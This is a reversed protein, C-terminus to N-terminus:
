CSVDGKTSGCMPFVKGSCECGCLCKGTFLNHALLDALLCLHRYPVNVKENAYKAEKGSSASASSNEIDNRTDREHASQATRSLKSPSRSAASNESESMGAAQESELAGQYASSPELNGGTTGAAERKDQKQQRGIMGRDQRSPKRTQQRQRGSNQVRSPLGGKASFESPAPDADLDASETPAVSISPIALSVRVNESPHMAQVLLRRPAPVIRKITHQHKLCRKAESAACIQPAFRGVAWSSEM